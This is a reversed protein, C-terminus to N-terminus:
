PFIRFPIWGEPPGSQVVEADTQGEDTNDEPQATQNETSVSPDETAILAPEEGYPPALQDKPESIPHNEEPVTEYIVEPARAVQILSTSPEPAPESATATKPVDAVPKPGGGTMAAILLVAFVFGALAVSAGIVQTETFPGFIKKSSRKHRRARPPALSVKGADIRLSNRKGPKSNARKDSTTSRIKPTKKLLPLGRQERLEADYISKRSPDRLVAQAQALENLLKQCEKAKSSTQFCRVKEIQGLATRFILQPDDEFLPLGLLLYHNPPCDDAAIDLLEYHRNKSM